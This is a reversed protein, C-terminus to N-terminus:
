TSKPFAILFQSYPLLFQLQLIPMGLELFLEIQAQRAVTLIPAIIM